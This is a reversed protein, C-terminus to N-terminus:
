NVGLVFSEAGPATVTLEEFGSYMEDNFGVTLGLNEGKASGSLRNETIQPTYPINKKAANIVTERAQKELDREEAKLSLEFSVSSGGVSEVSMTYFSLRYNEEDFENLYVEALSTDYIIGFRVPKKVTLTDGEASYPLLLIDLGRLVYDYSAIYGDIVCLYEGTDWTVLDIENSCFDRDNMCENVTPYADRFAKGYTLRGAKVATYLDTLETDTVERESLEELVIRETECRSFHTRTNDNRGFVLFLVLMIMMGALFIAFARGMLVRLRSKEEKEYPDFM